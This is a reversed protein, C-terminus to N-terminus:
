DPSTLSQLVVAIGPRHRRITAEPGTFRLYLPGRAGGEIIVGLLAHGRQPGAGTGATAGPNYTGEAYYSTLSFPGVTTKEITGARGVPRGDDSVQNGWRDINEDVSGGGNEGFYFVAMEGEGASADGPIRFSFARMTSSQPLQQWDAPIAFTVGPAEVKALGDARPPVAEGADVTAAPADGAHATVLRGMTGDAAVAADPRVPSVLSAMAAMVASEARVAEAPGTLRLFVSGEPGGEVMVADMSWRANPDPVSRGQAMPGPEYIGELVIRAVKLGNVDADQEFRVLPNEGAAHPRFQRFWREANEEMSGGQDAGFHFAVLETRTEDDTATAPVDFQAARMRSPTEQQRYRLPVPVQIGKIAVSRIPESPRPANFDVAQPASPSGTSPAVPAVAMGPANSGPAVDNIPPQGSTSVQSVPNEPVEPIPEPSKVRYQIDQENCGTIALGLLVACLYKARPLYM